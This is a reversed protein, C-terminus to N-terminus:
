KEWSLFHYGHNRLHRPYAFGDHKATATAVVQVKMGRSDVEPPLVAISKILEGSRKFPPGPPPNDTTHIGGAARVAWIQFPTARQRPEKLTERADVVQEQAFLTLARAIGGGPDRALASIAADYVKVNM